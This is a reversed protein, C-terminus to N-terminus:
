KAAMFPVAPNLLAQVQKLGEADNTVDMTEGTPLFVTLTNDANVRLLKSVQGDVEYSWTNSNNDYKLYSTQKTTENSISYGDVLTTVLYFDGNTGIVPQTKGADAILKEGTWFEVTNLIWWDAFMCLGYAPSIVVGIIANLFKNDTAKLNWKALKNFLTFSGICSSFLTTGALAIVVSKLIMKKMTILIKIGPRSM